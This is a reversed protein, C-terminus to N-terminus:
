QPKAERKKQQPAHLTQVPPVSRFDPIPVPQGGQLKSQVCYLGPATCNLAAYIGIPPTANYRV